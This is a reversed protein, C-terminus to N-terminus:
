KMASKKVKWRRHIWLWQEMHKLIMEELGDNLEQTMTEADSHPVPKDAYIRFSLGDPQRIAYIPVLDAKMKLAMEAASLPTFAPLGFFSLEAGKNFHQDFGFAVMGGDRLFKMMDGLGRRSRAFLPQAIASITSVYQENFIPNNMPRYIAGVRYGHGVLAARWADYNGFHGAALVVPRHEVHARELAEAGPGEIPLDRVRAVFEEGSYIEALMRGLSDPVARQLQRVEEFSLHPCAIALNDRIKRTFGLFPALRAVLKGAAPIRKEYPMRQVIRMVAVFLANSVRDSLTASRNKM